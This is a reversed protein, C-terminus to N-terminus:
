KGGGNPNGMHPKCWYCGCINCWAKNGISDIWGFFIVAGLLFLVLGVLSLM